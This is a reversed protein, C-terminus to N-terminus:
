TQGRVLEMAGQEEHRDHRGPANRGEVRRSAAVLRLRRAILAVSSVALVWISLCSVSLFRGM